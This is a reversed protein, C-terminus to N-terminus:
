LFNFGEQAAPEFVRCGAFLDGPQGTAIDALRELIGVELEGGFVVSSRSSFDAVQVSAPRSSCRSRGAVRPGSTEPCKNACRRGAGGSGPPIRADPWH